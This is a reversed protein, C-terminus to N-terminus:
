VLQKKIESQAAGDREERRGLKGGDGPKWLRGLAEIWGTIIGVALTKGALRSIRARGISWGHSWVMGGEDLEEAGGLLMLVSGNRM